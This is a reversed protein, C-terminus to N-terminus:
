ASMAAGFAVALAVGKAHFWSSSLGFALWLGTHILM